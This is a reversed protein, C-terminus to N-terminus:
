ANIKKEIIIKGGEFSVLVSKDDPTVGMEKVMEAPLSIKYNVSNKGATGGAKAIIINREIM